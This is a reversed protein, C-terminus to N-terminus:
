YYSVTNIVWKGDKKVMYATGRVICTGTTYSGSFMPYQYTRTASVNVPIGNAASYYSSTPEVAACRSVSLNGLNNTDSGTYYTGTCLTEGYIEAKQDSLFCDALNSKDKGKIKNETIDPLYSELAKAAEEKASGSYEIQSILSDGSTDFTYSDKKFMGDAGSFTAKHTGQFLKVSYSTADDNDSTNEAKVGDIKLTAGSINPVTVMRFSVSSDSVSTVEYKDFFFFSKEASRGVTVTIYNSGKRIRYVYEGNSIYGGVPSSLTETDSQDMTAKFTDENIFTDEEFHYADYVKSWNKNNYNKVFQNAASIPKSSRTGLYIFAAILAVLVVIQAIIIKKAKPSFTGGDKPTKIGKPKGPAKKRPKFGEEIKAGCEGCFLAGDEVEKGCNPCYM